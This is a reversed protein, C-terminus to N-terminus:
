IGDARYCVIYAEMTDEKNFLIEHEIGDEFFYLVGGLNSETGEGFIVAAEERTIGTQITREGARIAANEPIITGAIEAQADTLSSAASTCGGLLFCLVLVTACYKM